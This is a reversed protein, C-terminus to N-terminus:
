GLIFTDAGIDTLADMGQLRAIEVEAGAGSGDADYFLAGDRLVLVDDGDRAYGHAINGDTIGDSLAAFLATDLEIMDEAADFDLVTDVGDTSNFVFTDAGAGGALVDDGADGALRDDGANGLLTDDGALGRMDDGMFTGIMEDNGGSRVQTAEIERWSITVDDFELFDIGKLNDTGDAGKVLISIGTGYFNFSDGTLAIAYDSMNGEYIVTDSWGGGDRVYDNGAGTVYVDKGRGGYLIDSGAGGDLWDNGDDGHLVDRGEGGELWDDDAGGRLVDRGAGGILIDDGNGGSLADDGGNGLRVDDGYSLGQRDDSETGVDATAITVDDFSLHEIGFMRTSTAEDPQGTVPDLATVTVEGTSGDRVIAYDRFSGEFRAVDVDDAAAGDDRILDQGASGVYLDSGAGGFMRDDGQGGDLVDAGAGGHLIDDGGNGVLVDSGAGGDIRDGGSSGIIYDDGSVDAYRAQAATYQAGDLMGNLQDIQAALGGDDDGLGLSRMLQQEVVHSVYAELLALDSSQSADLILDDVPAGRESLFTRTDETDPLTVRDPIDDSTTWAAKVTTYGPQFTIEAGPCLGEVVEALIAYSETEFGNADITWSASVGHGTSVYRDVYATGVWPIKYTMTEWYGTDYSLHRSDISFDIEAKFQELGTELLQTADELKARFDGRRTGGQELSTTVMVQATLAYGLTAIAAAIGEADPTGNLVSEAMSLANGFGRDAADRISQVELADSRDLSILGNIATYSGEKALALFHQDQENFGNEVTVGLTSVDDALQGIQTRLEDIDAGIGDLKQGLEGFAAESDFGQGTLLNLIAEGPDESSAASGIAQGERIVSITGTVITILDAYSTM